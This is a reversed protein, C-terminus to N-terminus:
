RLQSTNILHLDIASQVIDLLEATGPVRNLQAQFNSLNQFERGSKDLRRHLVGEVTDQCPSTTTCLSIGGIPAQAREQEAQNYPKDYM